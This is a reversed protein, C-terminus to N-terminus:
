HKPYEGNKPWPEALYPFEGLFPKDNTLPNPVTKPVIPASEWLAPQNLTEIDCPKAGCNQGMDLFTALFRTAVQDTLRRGYPWTGNTDMDVQTLNPIFIEFTRKLPIDKGSPNWSNDPMNLKQFFCKKVRPFAETALTYVKHVSVPSNDHDFCTPLGLASISPGFGWGLHAFRITFERLFKLNNPGLHDDYRLSLAADSFPVGDHDVKNYDSERDNFELEKQFMSKIWLWMRTWWSPAYHAIKASAKLVYSEGWLRVIREAQPSETMFAMPIEFSLTNINRGAQDDEGDYVFRFNGDADKKFRDGKWEYPGPPLDYKEGKGHMPHAPDYNFLDNGELELLTKPIPLEALTKYSAAPIKFFQPAYNISRFFGHLNNFFADDRGGLFAKITQGRPTEIDAVQNTEVIQHFDGGPFGIFAVKAQNRDNFSVKIYPTKFNLFQQKLAEFHAIMGELSEADSYDSSRPAPDLHIQYMLDKDFVGAEPLPAFTLQVVLNDAGDAPYAFIDYLDAGSVPVDAYISNVANPDNHDAAHAYGFALLALAPTLYKLLGKM